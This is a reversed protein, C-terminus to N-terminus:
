EQYWNLQIVEVTPAGENVLRKFREVDSFGDPTRYHYPYVQKPKFAIVGSAAEEVSMTYPLNMPIFAVDIDELLRMEPIDATDGAIYIRANNKELVYGNGRGPEHRIEIGQTPLNYMPIANIRIDFTPNKILQGNIVVMAKSALEAPLEDAVAQPVILATNEGMVVELTESSLHDGHVDSVLVIDAAPQGEYAETDGVPDNYIVLDPWKLIFSAHAIPTIEPLSVVKENLDIDLGEIEVSTPLQSEKNALVYLTAGILVFLLIAIIINRNM